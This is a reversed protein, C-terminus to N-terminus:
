NSAILQSKQEYTTTLSVIAEVEQAALIIPVPWGLQILAM